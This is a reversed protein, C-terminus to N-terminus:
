SRRPRLFAYVVLIFGCLWLVGVLWPRWAMLLPMWAVPAAADPYDVRLQPGPGSSWALAVGQGDLLAVDGQDLRPAAAPLLPPPGIPRLWLGPQGGATLIQVAVAREVGGLDLVPRGARNSLLIRGADFRLVPDSDAPPEFTAAVFPGGPTAPTGPEALTVRLPAAAPVVARLVWLLPNLGEAVLVGGPADVLVELGAGFAAPLGLFDRPQGGAPALRLQSGPLLQAPGSAAARQLVVEIRNEAALARPPVPVMIRGQGEATLTTTGLIVENLLLTAVGRVGAPDPAARLLVELAEVRAGLPLDRTTFGLSWAARATEQPALSGRLAAFPLSGPPPPAESATPGTAGGSLSEALALGRWPSDLLRALREPAAGGLSLVPLGNMLRVQAAEAGQGVLVAGTEWLRAGGPGPLAQGPPASAISAQRGTAALALGIRLAAAAEAASIPGPRLLVQTTHPLLGFLAAVSLQGPEPLLLALHSEPLLTASASGTDGLLRLGLRLQGDPGALAAEPLPLDVTLRTSGPPFPQSALLRGNARLEIAHRGPFPASLEFELALRGALDAVGRPLPFTAEAGAADFGLGTPLDIEALAIRRELPPAETAARPAAIAPAPAAVPPTAPAPAQLQPEVPAPPPPLPIPEAAPARGRPQAAAEVGGAILAIALAARSAHRLLPLKARM